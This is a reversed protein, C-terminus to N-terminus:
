TRQSRSPHERARAEPSHTLKLFHGWMFLLFREGCPVKWFPEFRMLVPVRFKLSPAM